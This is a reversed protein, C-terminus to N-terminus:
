AAGAVRHAIGDGWHGARCGLDPAACLAGGTRQRPLSPGSRLARPLRAREGFTARDVGMEPFGFRGEVLCFNVLLHLGVNLAMAVVVMLNKELITLQVVLAQIALAIVADWAALQLFRAGIEVLHPPEGILRLLEPAVLWSFLATLLGLVAGFWFGADIVRMLGPTGEKAYADGALPEVGSTLGLGFVLATFFVANALALAALESSGLSAAMVTDVFAMVMYGVKALSLPAALRTLHLSTRLLSPPRAELTAEM